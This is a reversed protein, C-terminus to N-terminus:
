PKFLEKEILNCIIHFATIHCEQIRPTNDSPVTFCIDCLAKMKGGNIGTLGITTLGKVKATEMAKIINKSNGSTSIGILVDNNEGLAEVQRSFIDDFSYDNAYATIVSTDTTLAICPLASREKKFRGVMEGAVHQADAASGGNGCILVKGNRKFCEIMAQAVKTITEVDMKQKAKVSEVIELSVDSQKIIYIVGNKRV